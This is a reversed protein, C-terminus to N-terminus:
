TLHEWLAAPFCFDVWERDHRKSGQSVVKRCLEEAAMNVVFADESRDEV